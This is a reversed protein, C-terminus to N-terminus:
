IWHLWWSGRIVSDGQRFKFLILFINL